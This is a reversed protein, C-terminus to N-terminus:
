RYANIKNVNQGINKFKNKMDLVLDVEGKAVGMKQAIAGSEVGQQSLRLIEDANIADPNANNDFSIENKRGKNPTVKRSKKKKLIDKILPSKQIKDPTSFDAKQFTRTQQTTETKEMEASIDRVQQINQRLSLVLDVEDMGVGLQEAIQSASLGQQSLRIVDDQFEKFNQSKGQTQTNFAKTETRQTRPPRHENRTSIPEPLNNDSQGLITNAKAIRMDLKDSLAHILKQKEKLLSELKYSVSKAETLSPQLLEDLKELAIADTHDHRVFRRMFWIFLLIIGTDLVLLAIILIKIM